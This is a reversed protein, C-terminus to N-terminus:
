RGQFCKEFAKNNGKEVWCINYYPTICIFCSTQMKAFPDSHLDDPDDEM